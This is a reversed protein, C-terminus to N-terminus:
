DLLEEAREKTLGSVVTAVPSRGRKQERGIVELLEAPDVPKTLFQECGAQLAEERILDDRLGTLCHIHASFLRLDTRMRRAVAFGDVDPLLLDLLVCRPLHARALALAERGDSAEVCRYGQRELLLRLGLRTSADDDVILIDVSESAVTEIRM